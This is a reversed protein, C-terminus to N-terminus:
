RNYLRSFRKVGEFSRMFWLTYIYVEVDLISLSISNRAMSPIHRVETLTHIMDDHMRIRVSGIGLIDQPHKDEM